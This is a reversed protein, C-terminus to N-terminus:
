FYKEYSEIARKPNAQLYINTTSINAHGLLTRLDDIPVGKHTARTAFGHRLSHFKLSPKKELLKAKGCYNKFAIQLSRIGSRQNKYPLPLAKLMSVRFGKPLPVVRDKSGKAERLLVQKYKLNFDESRLKVVESVRLGMFYAFYFAAKFRKKKTVDMLANFEDEDLCVPLKRAKRKPKEMTELKFLEEKYQEETILGENFANSLEKKNM